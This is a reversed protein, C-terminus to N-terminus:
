KTVTQSVPVLYLVSTGPKTAPVTTPGCCLV